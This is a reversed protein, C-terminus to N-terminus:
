ETVILPATVIGSNGKLNILYYGPLLGLNSFKLTQVSTGNVDIETVFIIKGGIDTITLNYTDPIASQLSLTFAGRTPNPFCSLQCATIEIQEVGVTYDPKLLYTLNTANFYDSPTTSIGMLLLKDSMPVYAMAPFLYQSAPLVFNDEPIYVMETNINIAILALATPDTSAKTGLLYIFNGADNISLMNYIGGSISEMKPYAFSFKKEFLKTEPDFYLIACELSPESKYALLAYKGNVLKADEVAMNNGYVTWGPETPILESNMVSFSNTVPDFYETTTILSGGYAPWGGAIVAGGDNTPLILGQARPVNLNGAAVYVNGIIDYLETAAAAYDNYWGGIILVRGDNLQAAAPQMRSYNMTGAATFLDTQPNFIENEAYAPIGWDYGGGVLLYRGDDLKAIASADRPTSMGVETFTNTEPDYLDTYYGSVFGYERGGFIAIRGDDLTATLPVIRTRNMLPGTEVLAGGTQGFIQPILCFLMVFFVGLRTIKLENFDTKM